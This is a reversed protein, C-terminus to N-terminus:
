FGVVRNRMPEVVLGKVAIAMMCSTSAPFTFSSSGTALYMGSNQLRAPSYLLNQRLDLKQHRLPSAAAVAEVWVRVRERDPRLLEPLKHQCM